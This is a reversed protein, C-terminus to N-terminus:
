DKWIILRKEIQDRHFFLLTFPAAAWFLIWLGNLSFFLLYNRLSMGLLIAAGSFFWFVADLRFNFMERKPDTGKINTPRFVMKKGFLVKIISYDVALGTFSHLATTLLLHSFFNKLSIGARHALYVRLLFQLLWLLTMEALVLTWLWMEEFNNGIFQFLNLPSMGHSDFGWATYLLLLIYINHVTYTYFHQCLLLKLRISAGDWPLLFVEATQGAWRVIRRMFAFINPPDTDYSIVDVLRISYGARSLELSLTSDEPSIKECFGGVELVAQTRLLQNHGWSLVLGTRNAFRAAIYFRFRAVSGLVKSFITDADVPYILSQFIAIGKNSPHEAYAVLNEVFDPTILSDSDLIVFYKYNEGFRKLWYNINGAKYSIKEPRRVVSYGSQDMLVQEEFSTSDDLIFIDCNPYNQHLTKWRSPRSDDCVTMLVAVSPYEAFKNIHPTQLPSAFIAFLSETIDYAIGIFIVEFGFFFIASNIHRWDILFWGVFFTQSFYIISFTILAPIFFDKQGKKSENISDM